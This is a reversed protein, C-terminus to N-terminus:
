PTNAETLALRALVDRRTWLEFGTTLPWAELPVGPARRWAFAWLRRRGERSALADELRKIPADRYEELPWWILRLDQKVFALRGSEAGLFPRVDPSRRSSVLVMHANALAPRPTDGYYLTGPRGRFYWTFPWATEEGFAVRFRGELGLRRTLFDIEDLVLRIDPTGQAYALPEVPLSHHARSALHASRATFLAVLLVIGLALPPAARRLGLKRWARAAMLLVAVTALLWFLWRASTATSEVDRGRFPELAVVGAACAMYLTPVVLLASKWRLGSTRRWDVVDIRRGLWWGGLLCAPLSLHILLWPMKEGALSYALWSGLWWWAAFAPLLSVPESSATRSPLSSRRLVAWAGAGALLSPLLEYLATLMLYYFWPQSGRAVEHQGLWYGLSGVIGSALGPGLNRFLSTFLLIQCIWFLLFLRLARSLDCVRNLPAKLTGTRFWAIAFAMSLSVAAATSIAAHRLGAPFETDSPDWGMAIHLVPAAFPLVLALMLGALDGSPSGRLTEISRRSLRVGRFLLFLGLLGGFIFSTEKASFSAAMALTLTVLWIPRPEALYRLVSYVWILTFLAVYIDNRLYRSYFLLGPSIALLAAAVLAGTRGLWRRFPIMMLVVGVGAAATSLRATLDSHGVLRFVLANLHFLLPGHLAPDHEFAQGLSTLYSFYAHLSEDHGMVREGLGAFRTFVAVALLAMWALTEYRILFPRGAVSRSLPRDWPISSRRADPTM